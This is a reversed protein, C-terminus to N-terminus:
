EYQLYIHGEPLVATGLVLSSTGYTITETTHFKHWGSKADASGTQRQYIPSDWFPLGITYHYYNEGSGHNAIIYNCWGSNGDFEGSTQNFTLNTNGFGTSEISNSKNSTAANGTINGTLNGKLGNEFSVEGSANNITLPRLDNWAGYNDGQNTMLFYTANGDSRLICGREGHAIRLGNASTTQYESTSRLIGNISLSGCLPIYDALLTKVKNLLKTTYETLGELSLVKM